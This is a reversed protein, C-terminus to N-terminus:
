VPPGLVAAIDDDGLRCATAALGLAEDFLTLGVVAALGVPLAMKSRFRQTKTAAAGTPWRVAGDGLRLVLEM